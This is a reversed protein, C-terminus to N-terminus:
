SFRDIRSQIWIQTFMKQKTTINCGKKKRHMTQSKENRKKERHEGLPNSFVFQSSKVYRLSNYVRFPFM